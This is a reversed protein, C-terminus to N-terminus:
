RYDCLDICVTKGGPKEIAPPMKYECNPLWISVM